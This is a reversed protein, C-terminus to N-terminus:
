ATEGRAEKIVNIFSDAIDKLEGHVSALLDEGMPEIPNVLAKETSQPARIIQMKPLNGAEMMNTYDEAVMLVGISGFETPNNKNAVIVSAQSALWMGASAVMGDAFVGVPKTSTRITNAFDPTGDVTGGPTDMLMVIGHINPDANLNAMWSQMDRMGFSCLDGNKTLPGMVPMLAINKNGSKVIPLGVKEHYSEASVGLSDPGAALMANIDNTYDAIKKKEILANLKGAAVIPYLRTFYAESLAWARYQLIQYM